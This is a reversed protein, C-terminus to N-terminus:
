AAPTESFTYAKLKEVEEKGVAMGFSYGDDNAVCNMKLKEAEPEFAEDTSTKLSLDERSFRGRFLAFAVPEGASDESELLTACYPPQTKDGVATFGMESNKVWGLIDNQMASPVDLISLELQLDGVGKQSVYYAVNSAFVKKAESSLGTIQAETTGGKGQKGEVVHKSVLKGVEDLVATTARKFGVTIAM